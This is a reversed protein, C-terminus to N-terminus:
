NLIINAARRTQVETINNKFFVDITTKFTHYENKLERKIFRKKRSFLQFILNDKNSLTEDLVMVMTILFDYIYYM